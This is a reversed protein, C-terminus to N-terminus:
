ACEESKRLLYDVQGDETLVLKLIADFGTNKYVKPIFTTGRLIGTVVLNTGKEFFSDELVEKNGDEDVESITHSYHAFQQKYVKVDIVGDPCSLTLLGKTKNKDIVTGMITRLKYKPVQKGKITWFGDFEDEVLDNVGSVEVPLQM